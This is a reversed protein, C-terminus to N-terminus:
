KIEAKKQVECMHDADLSLMVGSTWNLDKITLHLSCCLTLSPVSIRLVLCRLAVQCLMVYTCLVYNCKHYSLM